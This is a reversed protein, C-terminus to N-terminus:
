TGKTFKTKWYMWTLYKCSLCGQYSTGKCLTVITGRVLCSIPLRLPEPFIVEPSMKQKPALTHYPVGTCNILNLKYLPFLIRQAPSKHGNNLLKGAPLVESQDYIKIFM